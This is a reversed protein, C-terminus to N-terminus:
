SPAFQYKHQRRLNLLPYEDHIEVLLVLGRYCDPSVRPVEFTMRCWSVLSASMGSGVNMM